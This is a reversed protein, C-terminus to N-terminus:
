MLKKADRPRLRFIELNRLQRLSRENESCRSGRTITESATSGVTVRMKARRVPHLSDPRVHHLGPGRANRRLEIRGSLASVRRSRALQSTDAPFGSVERTKTLRMQRWSKPM